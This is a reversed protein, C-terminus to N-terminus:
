EALACVTGDATATTLQRVAKTRCDGAAYIGDINTRGDEAAIIYGYDDMDVLGKCIDNNPIHGIYIFLGDLAITRKEKTDTNTLIVGTLASDGEIQEVTSKLIFEINPIQKLENALKQEGRFEDRRHILYVKQCLGSLLKASQLASSGGGVVAVTKNKFFPGDCVACYSIGRGILKEEKDLGLKRHKQGTAIILKRCTRKVQDAESYVSKTGDPNVEIRSAEEIAITVGLALAQEYLKDSLESGSIKEFGPYNEVLPSLSIQGGIGASELVLASKENRATYIAATLGAPGAGIIITDYFDSM